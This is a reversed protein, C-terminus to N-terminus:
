YKSKARVQGLCPQGAAAKSKRWQTELSLSIPVPAVLTRLITCECFGTCAFKTLASVWKMKVGGPVQM